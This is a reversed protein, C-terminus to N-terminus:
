LMARPSLLARLARDAVGYCDCSAKELGARDLVTIKGRSHRVLGAQHLIGVALAVTSRHVGLMYAIFEQTIRMVEVGARDQAMLLWRSLRQEVSHQGNCVVSQSVQIMLAQTYRRSLDRLASSRRLEERFDRVSMRLTEGKVQVLAQWHNRDSGMAIETGLLGENGVTAVEIAPGARTGMIMSIMGSLPFYVHRTREGARSLTQELAGPVRSCRAVLRAREAEPL